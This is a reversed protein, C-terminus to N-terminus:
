GEVCLMGGEFCKSLLSQAKAVCWFVIPGIGFDVLAPGWQICDPQSKM